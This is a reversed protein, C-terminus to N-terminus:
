NILTILRKHVYECTIGDFRCEFNYQQALYKIINKSMCNLFQITQTKDTYHVFKVMSIYHEVQSESWDKLSSFPQSAFSSNGVSFTAQGFTIFIFWYHLITQEWHDECHQFM